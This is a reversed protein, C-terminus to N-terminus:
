GAAKSFAHTWELLKKTSAKLIDVYLITDDALQSHKVEEKVVQIGKIENQQTIDSDLVELMISLLLPSLLFGKM